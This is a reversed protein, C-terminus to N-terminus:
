HAPKAFCYLTGKTRLYIRGDVIAPTAFASEEFQASSLMKLEPEASFLTAIGTKDIVLMKGDGIVPSSFYDHTGAARRQKLQRGATTDVCSVIGGSKVMYLHGKYFVPSPVYPLQKSSRWQVHTTTVDGSGGSRIAM